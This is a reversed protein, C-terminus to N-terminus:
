SVDPRAPIDTLSGDAHLVQLKGEGPDFLIETAAAVDRVTFSRSLGVDTYIILGDYDSVIGAGETYNHGIVMHRFNNRRCLTAVQFVKQKNGSRMYDRHSVLAELDPDSAMATLARTARKNMLQKQKTTANLPYGAHSYHVGNYVISTHFLASFVDSGAQQMYARRADASPIHHPSVYQFDGRLNLIEHNGLLAVLTSGEKEAESAAVRLFELIWLDSQTKEFLMDGFEGHRSRADLVDGMLIVVIGPKTWKMSSGTTEVIKHRVLTAVLREADGHVDGIAYLPRVMEIHLCNM